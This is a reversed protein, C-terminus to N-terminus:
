AETEIEAEGEEPDPEKRTAFMECLMQQQQRLIELIQQQQVRETHELEHRKKELELRQKKLENKEQEIRFFFSFILSWM